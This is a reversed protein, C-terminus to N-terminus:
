GKRYIKEFEDVLKVIEDSLYIRTQSTDQILARERTENWDAVYIDPENLEVPDFFYVTRFIDEDYNDNESSPIVFLDKGRRVLDVEGPISRKLPVMSFKMRPKGNSFATKMAWGHTDRDIHKHFGGGIGYLIFNLPVGNELMYEDCKKANTFSMNEGILVSVNTLNNKKVIKYIDVAQEWTQGSDPRCSIKLGKDFAYIALPLLYERIFRNSDYTDILLSVTHGGHEHAKDIARKFSDFERDFQQTVKHAQAPISGVNAKPTHKKSHFTDTGQLAMNWATSAWYSDEPSRHSRFGFDHFRWMFSDDYGFQNKRYVIYERMKMAETLCASAFYAMMFVGEYWTVFDGFGEVTNSIQAFPTGNPCWTGEPVSEVHLPVYGNCEKVVRMWMKYPFWLGMSKANDSAEDIMWKEIKISLIRNVIESLGYLYMGGYGQSDDRNYMHSVEWDLNEKLEPHSLNYCDTMDVPNRFIDQLV